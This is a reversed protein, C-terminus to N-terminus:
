NQNATLNKKDLAKEEAPNIMDFLKILISSIPFSILIIILILLVQPLIFQVTSWGDFVIEGLIPVSVVIICLAATLLFLVARVVNFPQCIRTLM